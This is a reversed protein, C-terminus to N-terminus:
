RRQAQEAPARLEALEAYLAAARRCGPDEALRREVEALAGALVQPDAAARELTALRDEPHVYRYEPYPLSPDAGAPRRVFVMAVDDWHVLAFRSTPFLLAHTTRYETVSPADDDGVVPRMVPRLREDYRVIAGDIAYRRLLASWSWSDDRARTLSALLAPDVENRGDIFVRRSPYGRWLLYGGFAVDNYVRRDVPLTLELATTAQVPFRDRQLGIGFTYPGQRPRLPGTAPPWVCWVAGLLAFAPLAVWGARHAIDGWQPRTRALDSLCEGAFIAGGVMFLGQHRVGSTALALLALCALGSAPDLRGTTRRTLLALGVLLALAMLAYPQPADWAPSWDPNVAPLGDLAGVIRGPVGFLRWGYPNVLLAAALALPLGVVWRWGPAEGAPYRGPLRSGLLYVAAIVPAALAGPHMNAWVAVLAVTCAATVPSPRRRFSQLLVLLLLVGVLTALEPRMMARPRLGLVAILTVLGAALAPAGSERLERLLVLALGVVALTRLLALAHLGGALEAARMGIQFLWAHDIWPLTATFRFPDDFPISGHDVIWAGSALHWFLDYARLRFTGAVLAFGAVSIAVWAWPRTPTRGDVM